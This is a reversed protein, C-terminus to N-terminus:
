YKKKIKLLSIRGFPIKSFEKAWKRYINYLFNKEIDFRLLFGIIGVLM